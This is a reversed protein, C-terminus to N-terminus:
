APRPPHFISLPRRVPRAGDDRSPDLLPESTPLPPRETLCGWQPARSTASPAPMPPAAPKGSCFAGSCPMPRDGPVPIPRGPTEAIAGAAVLDDFHAEVADMYERLACGKAQASAPAFWGCALLALAAGAWRRASRGLSSTAM